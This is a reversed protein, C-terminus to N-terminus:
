ERRNTTGIFDFGFLSGVIGGFIVHVPMPIQFSPDRISAIVAAMWALSVIVTVYNKIANKSM